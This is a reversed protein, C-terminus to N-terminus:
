KKEKEYAKRLLVLDKENIEDLSKKGTAESVIRNSEEDSFAQKFAAIMKKKSEAFSTKPKSAFTAANGDDDTDALGLMAVLSYRRMYTIASGGAQPSDEKPKMSLTEEIWEGSSHILRTTVVFRGEEFSAPQLFCLGHETLPARCVDLVSELNAYSSKFFPNKNGKVVKGMHSQAKCLAEAIKGITDSTKM